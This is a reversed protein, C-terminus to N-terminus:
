VPRMYENMGDRYRKPDLWRQVSGTIYGSADALAVTWHVALSVFYARLRGDARMVRISKRHYGHVGFYGFLVATLMWAAPMWFGMVFFIALLVINRINYRSSEATFQTHGGGCGYFHFQRALSRFNGRPRWSVIADGAFVWRVNMSRIKEDWLSDDIDLFEPLGGARIWLEKTYAQSRCSPNFTEPNVPDLTGRMTALGVVREFPTRPDIRYFGAVFDARREDEFPKTIEDLWRPDLRCGSDTSAIVDCHVSEIGINRGRGINAGPAEILRIRPDRAAAQRIVEVTGDTSGGDVVVIEDPQRIQLKLSELLERCGEAANLVTTVLAVTKM